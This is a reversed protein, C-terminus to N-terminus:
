APPRCAPARTACARPREEVPVPWWPRPLAAVPGVAGVVRLRRHGGLVPLRRAEQGGRALLAGTQPDLREGIVLGDGLGRGLEAQAVDILLRLRAGVLQASFIGLITIRLGALPSPRLDVIFPASTGSSFSPPSISPLGRGACRSPSPWRRRRSGPTRASRRRPRTRLGRGHLDLEAGFPALPSWAIIRQMSPRLRALIEGRHRFATAPGEPRLSRAHGELRRTGRCRARRRPSGAEDGAHLARGAAPPHVRREEDVHDGRGRGSM